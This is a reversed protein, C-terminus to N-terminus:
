LKPKEFGVWQFCRDFETSRVLRAMVSYPDNADGAKRTDGFYLIAARMNEQSAAYFVRGRALFKIRRLGRLDGTLLSGPAFCRDPIGLDESLRQLGSLLHAAAGIPKKDAIQRLGTMYNRFRPAWLVEVVSAAIM